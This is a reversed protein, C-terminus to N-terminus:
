RAPWGTRSRHGFTQTACRWLYGCAYGGGYLLERFLWRLLPACATFAAVFVIRGFQEDTMGRLKDSRPKKM